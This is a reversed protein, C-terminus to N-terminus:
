FNGSIESTCTQRFTSSFFQHRLDLPSRGSRSLNPGLFELKSVAFLYKLLGITLGQLCLLELVQHLHHVHTDIDPSFILINDVYVFCLSLDGLIQEM